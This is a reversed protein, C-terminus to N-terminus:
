AVSNIGPFNPIGLRQTLGALNNRRLATTYKTYWRTHGTFTTTWFLHYQTAVTHHNLGSERQASLHGPHVLTIGTCQIYRNEENLSMPPLDTGCKLSIILLWNRGHYIHRAPHVLTLTTLSRVKQTYAPRATRNKPLPSSVM